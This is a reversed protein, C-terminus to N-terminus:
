YTFTLQVQVRRGPQEFRDQVYQESAPHYYRADFLNTVRTSFRWYRLLPRTRFFVNTHVAPRVHEGQITRRGSDVGAMVAVTAWSRLPTRLQVRGLHAPSNVPVEEQGKAAVFQYSYSATLNTREGLPMAWEAELGTVTLEGINAFHIEDSDDIPAPSILDSLHNSFASLIGRSRNAFVHEYVVEFTTVREPGLDPNPRTRIQDSGLDIFIHTSNQSRRINVLFKVAVQISM